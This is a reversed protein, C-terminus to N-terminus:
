ETEDGDAANARVSEVYAAFLDSLGTVSVAGNLLSRFEDERDFELEGSHAAFIPHVEWMAVLTKARLGPLTLIETKRILEALDDMEDHIRTMRDSARDAGNRRCVKAHFLTAPSKGASPHSWTPSDYNDGFKAFVERQALRVLKTWELWAPLFSAFLKEFRKGAAIVEADANETLALSPGAVLSVSNVAINMLSRRTVCQSGAQATCTSAPPMPEIQRSNAQHAATGSTPVTKMSSLRDAGAAGTTPAM